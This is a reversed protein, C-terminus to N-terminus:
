HALSLSSPPPRVVIVVVVVVITATTTGRPNPPPYHPFFVACPASISCRSIARGGGNRAAPFPVQRHAFSLCLRRMRRDGGSTNVRSTTSSFPQFLFSIDLYRATMSFIAAGTHSHCGEELLLAFSCALIRAPCTAEM